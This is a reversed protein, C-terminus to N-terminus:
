RRGRRGEARPAGRGTPTPRTSELYAVLVEILEDVVARRRRPSVTAARQLMAGTIDVMTTAVMRRHEATKGSKSQVIREIRAAMAEAAACGLDDSRAHLLMPLAPHRRHFRDLGRVVTEISERVSPSGEIADFLEDYLAILLERYQIALAETVVEVSDFFDYIGSVAIEARQAIAAITLADVGGEAILEAATTLVLDVRAIARDQTPTRRLLHYFDSSTSPNQAGM